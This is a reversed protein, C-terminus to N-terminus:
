VAIEQAIAFSVGQELDDSGNRYNSYTANLILNYTSGNSSKAGISYTVPEITGPRDVWPLNLYSPTSSNNNDYKATAAGVWRGTNYGSAWQAGILNNDRLVVFNVNTDTEYFMNFEVFIWSDPSKPTITINLPEITYSGSNNYGESVHDARNAGDNNPINYYFREMVISHSVTIVHGPTYMCNPRKVRLINGVGTLTNVRIGSM